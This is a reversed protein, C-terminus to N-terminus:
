RSILKLSKDIVQAKISKEFAEDITHGFQVSKYYSLLTEDPRQKNARIHQQALTTDTNDCYRTKFQEQIKDWTANDNSTCIRAFFESPSDKLTRACLTKM